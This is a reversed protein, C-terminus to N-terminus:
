LRTVSPFLSSGQLTNVKLMCFKELQMKDYNKLIIKIEKNLVIVQYDWMYNDSM